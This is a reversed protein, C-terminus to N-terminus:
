VEGDGLRLQPYNSDSNVAKYRNGIKEGATRGYSLLISRSIGLRSTAPEFGAPRVM